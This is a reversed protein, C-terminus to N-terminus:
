VSSLASPQKEDMDPGVSWLKELAYFDRKEQTM